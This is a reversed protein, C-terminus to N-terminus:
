VKIIDVILFKEGSPFLLYKEKENLILEYNESISNDPYLNLDKFRVCFVDNQNNKLEFMNKDIKKIEKLKM